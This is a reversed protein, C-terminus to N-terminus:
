ITIDHLVKISADTGYSSNLVRTGKAGSVPMISQM